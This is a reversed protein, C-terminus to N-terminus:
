KVYALFENTIHNNIDIIDYIKNKNNNKIFNQLFSIMCSTTLIKKFIYNIIEIKYKQYYKKNNNDNVNYYIKNNKITFHPGLKNYFMKIMTQKIIDIYTKAIIPEIIDIHSGFTKWFCLLIRKKTFIPHIEQLYKYCEEETLINYYIKLFNPYTDGVSVKLYEYKDINIDPDLCVSLGEKNKNSYIACIPKDIVIETHTTMPHIYTSGPKFCPGICQKGYKSIQYEKNNKLIM